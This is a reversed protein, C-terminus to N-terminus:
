PSATATARAGRPAARSATLARSLGLGGGPHGVVGRHARQGLPQPTCSCSIPRRPCRWCRCSGAGRRGQGLFRSVGAYFACAGLSFFLNALVLMPLIAGGCPWSRASCCCAVITLCLAARGRPHRPVRRQARAFGAGRPMRPQGGGHHVRPAHPARDDAVSPISHSRLRQLFSGGPDSRGLGGGQGGVHGLRDARGHAATNSPLHAYQGEKAVQGFAEVYREAVPLRRAALSGPQRVAEGVQTIARSAAAAIALVAALERGTGPQDAGAERGRAPSPRERRQSSASRRRGAPGRTGRDARAERARRHDAGQM